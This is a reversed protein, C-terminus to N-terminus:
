ANTFYVDGAEFKTMGVGPLPIINLSCWEEMLKFM